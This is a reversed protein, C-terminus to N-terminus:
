PARPRFALATASGGAGEWAGVGEEGGVSDEEGSSGTDEEDDGPDGDERSGADGGDGAGAEVHGGKRNKRRKRGRGKTGRRKRKKKEKKEEKRMPFWDHTSACEPYENFWPLMLTEIHKQNIQELPVLYWLCSMDDDYLGIRRFPSTIVEYKDPDVAGYQFEDWVEEQREMVAIDDWWGTLCHIQIKLKSASGNKVNREYWRSIERREEWKVALWRPRRQNDIITEQLLIIQCSIPDNHLEEIDIAPAKKRIADLLENPPVAGIFFSDTAIKNAWVLRIEFQKDNLPQPEQQESPSESRQKRKGLTSILTSAM